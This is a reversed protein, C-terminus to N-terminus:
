VSRSNTSPSLARPTPGRSMIEIRCAILAAPARWASISSIHHAHRREIGGAGAVDESHELCAAVGMAALLGLRALRGLIELGHEQLGHDLLHKGAEALLA